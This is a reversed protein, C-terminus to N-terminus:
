ERWAAVSYYINSSTVNLILNSAAATRFLYGPPSVAMFEHDAVVSVGSSVAGSSAMQLASHWVLNTSASLWRCVMSSPGMGSLNYAYVYIAQGAVSSILAADGAAAIRGTVSTCDPLLQRMGIGRMTSNTGVARTSSEIGNNTSDALQARVANDTATSGINLRGATAAISGITLATSGDLKFNQVNSSDVSLGAAKPWNTSGPQVQWVTSNQEVSVKGGLSSVQM